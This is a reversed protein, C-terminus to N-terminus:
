MQEHNSPISYTATAAAILQRTDTREIMVDIVALRKGIKLIRGTGEIPVPDPRHLFSINLNATVAGVVPGIHALLAVYATVDAVAFQTPGNITGGPRLHGREPHFLLTASGPNVATVEFIPIEERRIMPFENGLFSNIEDATLVPKM